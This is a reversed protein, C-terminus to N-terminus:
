EESKESEKEEIYREGLTLKIEQGYLAHIKKETETMRQAAEHLQKEPSFDVPLQYIEVEAWRYDGAAVFFEQLLEQLQESKNEM